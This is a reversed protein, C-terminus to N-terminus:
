FHFDLRTLVAHVNQSFGEGTVGRLRAFDYSVMWRVHPVPTWVLSGAAGHMMRAGVAVGAALVDRDAALLEYRASLQWAGAGGGARLPRAPELEEDSQREGTLAWSLDLVGGVDTAGAIREGGVVVRQTHEVLVEAHVMIPGGVVRAGTSFAHRSGERWAAQRDYVLVPALQGGATRADAPLDGRATPPSWRHGLDFTMSSRPTARIRAALDPPDDFALANTGEFVGLQLELADELLDAELMVGVDRFQALKEVAVAREPHVLANSTTGRQLSFPRLMQGMRLRLREHLELELFANEFSFSGIAYQVAVDAVVRDFAFARIGIRARRVVLGPDFSGGSADIRGDLHLRGKLTVGHRGDASRVSPPWPDLRARQARAPEADREDAPEPEIGSASLALLAPRVIQVVQPWTSCFV